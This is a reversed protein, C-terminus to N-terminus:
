KRAGPSYLARAARTDSQGWIPKGEPTTGYSTYVPDGNRKVEASPDTCEVIGWGDAAKPIRQHMAFASPSTFTFCCGACHCTKLGKGFDCACM